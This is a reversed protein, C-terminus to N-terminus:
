LRVLASKVDKAADAHSPMFLAAEMAEVAALTELQAGIDYLFTVGYKTLTKESSICDALFVVDDPTRFGVM